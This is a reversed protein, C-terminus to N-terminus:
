SLRVFRARSMSSSSRTTPSWWTKLLMTRLVTFSPSAGSAPRGIVVYAPLMRLRACRGRARGPPSRVQGPRVEAGGGGTAQRLIALQRGRDDAQQRGVSTPRMSPTRMMGTSCCRASDPAAACPRRRRRAGRARRTSGRARRGGASGRGAAPRSGSGARDGALAAPARGLLGPEVVIGASTSSISSSVARSIAIM